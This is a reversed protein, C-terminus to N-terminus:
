KLRDCLGRPKLHTNDQLMRVSSDHTKIWSPVHIYTQTRELNKNEQVGTYQCAAIPNIGLELHGIFEAFFM